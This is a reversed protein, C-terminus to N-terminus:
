LSPGPSRRKRACTHYARKGTVTRGDSTTATIDVTFRGKPLGTLNVPATIRSRKVTKVRKGNVTVTARVWVVGPLRRIRITFNRRSVCRRASPLSFAKATSIAPAGNSPPSATPGAAPAPAPAPLPAVTLTVTAVDSQFAGDRARYTFSDTGTFGESGQYDFGGTTAFSLTGHAPTSVLLASLAGPSSDNALVGPAAVSLSSGQLVAYADDTARPLAFGLCDPGILGRAEALRLQYRDRYQQPARQVDAIWEGWKDPDLGFGADGAAVRATRVSLAQDIFWRLQLEPNDPFGAYPGTNWIAVRMAFYGKSDVDGANLNKLGSEVLAAMVPLEGPIGRARAGHAMWQAIAERSAGDGPYSVPSVCGDGSAAAALNRDGGSAIANARAGAGFVILCVLLVLRKM